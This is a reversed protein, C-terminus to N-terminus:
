TKGSFSVRESTMVPTWMHYQLTEDAGDVSIQQELFRAGAAAPLFPQRGEAGRGLGDVDHVALQAQRAIEPDLSQTARELRRGIGAAASRKV